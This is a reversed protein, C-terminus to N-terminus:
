KKRISSCIAAFADVMAPGSTTGIQNGCSYPKKGVKVLTDIYWTKGIPPTAEWRVDTPSKRQVNQLTKDSLIGKVGDEWYPADSVAVFEFDNLIFQRSFEDAVLKTGAPVTAVMGVFDPGFPDLAIDEKVTAPKDLSTAKTAEAKIAAGLGDKLGKDLETTLAKKVDQALSYQYGGMAAALGGCVLGAIALGKSKRLSLVGFLIALGALPIAYMGLLPILSILIAIIGLVLAAIHM